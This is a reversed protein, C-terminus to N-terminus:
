QIQVMQLRLMRTQCCHRSRNRHRSHRRADAAVIREAASSSATNNVQSQSASYAGADCARRHSQMSEACGSWSCSPCRVLLADIFSKMLLNAQPKVRRLDKRCLPCHSSGKSIWQKMCFCCFTCQCVPVFFVPELCVDM